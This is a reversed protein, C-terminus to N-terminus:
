DLAFTPRFCVSEVYVIREVAEALGDRVPEVLAVMDQNVSLEHARLVLALIAFGLFRLSRLERNEPPQAARLRFHGRWSGCRLRSGFASRKSNASCYLGGAEAPPSKKNTRREQWNWFPSTADAQSASCIAGGRISDAAVLPPKTGAVSSLVKSAKLAPTHPRFLLSGDRSRRVLRDNDAKGCRFVVQRRVQKKLRLKRHWERTRRLRSARTRTAM